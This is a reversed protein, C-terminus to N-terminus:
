SLYNNVMDKLPLICDKIQMFKTSLSTSFFYGRTQHLFPPYKSGEIERGSFAGPFPIKENLTVSTEGVQTGTLM